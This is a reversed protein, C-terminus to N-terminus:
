FVICNNCECKKINKNLIIFNRDDYILSLNKFNTDSIKMDNNLELFNFIKIKYNVQNMLKQIDM